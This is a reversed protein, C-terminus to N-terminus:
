ETPVTTETYPESETKNGSFRVTVKVGEGEIELLVPTGEDESQWLQADGKELSVSRKLCQEGDIVFLATEKTETEAELKQLAERILRATAPMAESEPSIGQFESRYVGNRVSEKLGFLPSVPDKCQFVFDGNQYLTFAGKVGTEGCIVTVGYREGPLLAKKEAQRGCGSMLALCIAIWVLRNMKM